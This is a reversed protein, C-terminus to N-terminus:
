TPIPIVVVIKLWNLFKLAYETFILAILNGQAMINNVTESRRLVAVHKNTATQIM